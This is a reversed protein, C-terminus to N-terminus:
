DLPVVAAKQFSRTWAYTLCSRFIANQKGPCEGQHFFLSKEAERENSAIIRSDLKFRSLITAFPETDGLNPSGLSYGVITTLQM